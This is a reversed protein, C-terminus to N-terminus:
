DSLGRAHQNLSCMFREVALVPNRSAPVWYEENNVKWVPDYDMPRSNYLDNAMKDIVYKPLVLIM